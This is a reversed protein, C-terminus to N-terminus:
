RNYADGSLHYNMRMVMVDFHSNIVFIVNLLHFHVLNHEWRVFGKNIMPNLGITAM